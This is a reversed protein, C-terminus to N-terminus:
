ALNGAWGRTCSCVQLRRSRLVAFAVTAGRLCRVTRSNGRYAAGSRPLAARGAGEAFRKTNVEGAVPMLHGLRGPRKGGRRRAGMAREPREMEIIEWVPDLVSAAM